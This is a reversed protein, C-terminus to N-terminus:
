LTKQIVPLESPPFGKLIFRSQHIHNIVEVRELQTVLMIDELNMKWKFKLFSIARQKYDCKKFFAETGDMASGHLQISRRHAIQFICTMIDKLLAKKLQYRFKEDAYDEDQIDMLTDAHKVIYQTVGDVLVQSAQLEDPILVFCFSYLRSVHAQLLELIWKRKVGRDYREQVQDKL